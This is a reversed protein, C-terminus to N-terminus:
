LILHDLDTQELSKELPALGDRIKEPRCPYVLAPRPDRDATLSGSSELDM